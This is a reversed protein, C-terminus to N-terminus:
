ALRNLLKNYRLNQLQLIEYERDIRRLINTQKTNYYEIISHIGVTMKCNLQRYLLSHAGVKIVQKGTTTCLWLGNNFPKEILNALISAKYM